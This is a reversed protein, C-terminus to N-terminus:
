TTRRARLSSAFRALQKPAYASFLALVVIATIMGKLLVAIPLSMAQWGPWLAILALVCVACVVMAIEGFYSQRSLRYAAIHGGASVVVYAGLMALAGGMLDYHPILLLGLVVSTAAGLVSMTAQIRPRKFYELTTNSVLNLSYIFSAILLVLLVPFGTLYAKPAVARLIEHAFMVAFSAAGFILLIFLKSSRRLVHQAEDPAAGFVAPQMAKGFSQSVISIMIALQQALGFIAVKDLGVQHQLNLVAFRNLLFYAIYSIAYPMGYHLSPLIEDRHIVPRLRDGINYALFAAAPLYGIVLVVLLGPLGLKFIVLALYAAITLLVASFIQISVFANVRHELRLWLSGLQALFTTAALILAYWLYPQSPTTPSMLQWLADGVFLFLIAAVVVAAIFFMVVSNLYSRRAVGKPYDFYLRGVASLLGFYLLYGLIETNARISVYAGFDTQSLTRTYLPLLLFGSIGLLLMDAIGYLGSATLLQRIKM